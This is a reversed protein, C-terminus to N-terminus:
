YLLQLNPFTNVSDPALYRGETASLTRLSVGVAKGNLSLGNRTIAAGHHTAETFLAGMSIVKNAASICSTIVQRLSRGM